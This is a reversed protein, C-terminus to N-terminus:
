ADAVYRRWEDELRKPDGWGDHLLMRYRLTFNARPELRFPEHFLFAPNLYGFGEKLVGYWPTPHRPNSPHEFIALGAALGRGGDAVGSLDAWRARQGHGAQGARGESDQFRWSGLSRAARWSLGAYGGWSKEAPPTREFVVAADRATFTLTWDLTYAGDPGPLGFRVVRSEDLVVGGGPPRYCLRTAIRAGDPRAVVEEHPVFETIGDQAGDSTEEWYNVGNLYKWSFWLGRHWVHDSPELCTLPTGSATFAPHIFPKRRDACFRYRFLEGGERLLALEREPQWSWRFAHPM